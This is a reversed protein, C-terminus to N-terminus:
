PLKTKSANDALRIPSADSMHNSVINVVTERRQNSWKLRLAIGEVITAGVIDHMIYNSYGSRNAIRTYPKGVDHLLAAWRLDTENPSKCVTSVTHEWLTLAHYPSDQDYGVQLWLEPLMFKLLYSDALVKLGRQPNDSTLLKDMEQVWRERSVMLIKQSHKRMTGIFNPDVDFDLQAAFRAARLMRLPDEKIRETGNGVPKIKRELIDLRGGFPDIIRSDRRAIANVTFDRRALDQNIDEVFEVAPKRSGPQYKEHRFTTVEVYQINGSRDSVKFGITGFRKGIAYVHRGSAKVRNEVEDPSLATAFDYDKPEKNLLEDRLSGGVLYVDNGIVQHVADEIDTM